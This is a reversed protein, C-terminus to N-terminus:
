SIVTNQNIISGRIVWKLFGDAELRTLGVNATKKDTIGTFDDTVFVAGSESDTIRSKIEGLYNPRIM